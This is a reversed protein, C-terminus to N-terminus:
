EQEVTGDLVGINNLEFMDEDSLMHGAGLNLMVSNNHVAYGNARLFKVYHDLAEYWTKPQFSYDITAGDDTISCLTIVSM